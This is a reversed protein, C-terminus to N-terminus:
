VHRKRIQFPTRQALKKVGFGFRPSAFDPQRNVPLMEIDYCSVLLAVTHLMMRKALLRGPCAHHGGLIVDASGSARLPVEDDVHARVETHYGRGRCAKPRSYLNIIRPKCAKQQRSHNGAQGAPPTKPTSWSDIPGFSTLPDDATRRIGPM